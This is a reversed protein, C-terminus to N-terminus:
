RPLAPLFAPPNSSKQCLSKPGSKARRVSSCSPSTKRDSAALMTMPMGSPIRAAFRGAVSPKIMPAVPTTCVIGESASSAKRIGSVPRMPATGAYM